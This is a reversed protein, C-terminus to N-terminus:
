YHGRFQSQLNMVSGVGMFDKTLHEGNTNSSPNHLQKKMIEPEESQWMHNFNAAQNQQKFIKQIDVVSNRNNSSMNPDLLGFVGNSNDFSSNGTMMRTPEMHYNVSHSLEEKNEEQVELKLGHPMSINNGGTFSVEQYRYNMWQRESSSSTGFMNSAETLTTTTGPSFVNSSNSPVSLHNLHSNSQDLWMPMRLKHGHETVDAFNNGTYQEGGFESHFGHLQLGQPMVRSAQANMLIENGLNSLVAPLRTSQEAM